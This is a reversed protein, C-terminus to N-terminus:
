GCESVCGVPSVEPIVYSGFRIGRSALLLPAAPPRRQRLAGLARTRRGAAGRRRAGIGRILPPDYTVGSTLGVRVFLLPSLM